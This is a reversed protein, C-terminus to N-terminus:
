QNEILSMVKSLKKIKLYSVIYLILVFVFFVLIMVSNGTLLLFDFLGHFIIPMIISLALNKTLKARENKKENYKAFGMYYGMAVGFFAHGPVSVVARLLGVGTGYSLVYLVNELTAFGLSTFVSYVIGDYIHNFNKNKWALLYTFLAKYGEEILAICFFSMIFINIYSTDNADIFIMAIEELFAAPITSAIGLSFLKILLDIPEKELIDKKYVFYCLVITPIVAIAFTIIM